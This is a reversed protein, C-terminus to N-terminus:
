WSASSRRHRVALAISHSWRAVHRRRGECPRWCAVAAAIDDALSSPDYRADPRWSSRRQWPFISRSWPTPATAGARRNDWTHREPCNRPCLGLEPDTNGWVLASVHRGDPLTVDERRVNPPEAFTLGYESANEHFLGFEDYAASDFMAAMM